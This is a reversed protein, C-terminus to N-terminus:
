QSLSVWSGLSNLGYVGIFCALVLVTAATWRRKGIGVVAETAAPRPLWDRPGIKVVDLLHGLVHVSMAAFWIVFSAKHLFLMSDRVSGRTSGLAVGSALLAVTTLVVVPGLVRLILSPPGKRRYTGSGTYYRAFRYGTTGIKLVTPPILAFGLFIHAKLLGHISLLTAGEAALMVLLLGATSSTLRANGEVGDATQDRQAAASTQNSVDRSELSRGKRSASAHTTLRGYPRQRVIM